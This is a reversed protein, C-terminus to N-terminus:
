PNFPPFNGGSSSSSSADHAAKALGVAAALLVVGGGILSTRRWDIERASLRDIDGFEIRVSTVEEITGEIDPRSRYGILTDGAVEAYDFDYVLGDHTTVHVPRRTARTAIEGRPIESLTTCGTSALWAILVPLALGRTISM